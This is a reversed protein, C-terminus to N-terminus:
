YYIFLCSITYVLLYSSLQDNATSGLTAKLKWGLLYRSSKTANSALSTYIHGVEGVAENPLSYSLVHDFDTEKDINIAVSLIELVLTIFHSIFSITTTASEDLDSGPTNRKFYLM